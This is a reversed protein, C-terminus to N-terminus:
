SLCTSKSVSRSPILKRDGIPMSLSLCHVNFILVQNAFELVRQRGIWSDIREVYSDSNTAVLNMQGSLNRRLLSTLGGGQHNRFERRAFLHEVFQGHIFQIRRNRRLGNMSLIAAM